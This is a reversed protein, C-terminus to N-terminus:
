AQYNSAKRSFLLIFLTVKEQPHPLNWSSLIFFFSLPFNTAQHPNCPLECVAKYGRPILPSNMIVCCSLIKIYYNINAVETNKTKQQHVDRWECEDKQQEQLQGTRYIYSRSVDMLQGLVGLEWGVHLDRKNSVWACYFNHNCFQVGFLCFCPVRVDLNWLNTWCLSNFIQIRGLLLSRLSMNIVSTHIHTDTHM